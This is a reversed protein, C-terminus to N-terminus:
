PENGLSKLFNQRDVLEVMDLKGSGKMMGGENSGVVKLRSLAGCTQNLLVKDGHRHCCTLTPTACHMAIVPIVYIPLPHRAL